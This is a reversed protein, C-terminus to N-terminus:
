EVEISVIETSLWWESFNGIYLRMGVQIEHRNAAEVMAWSAYDDNPVCYAYAAPNWYGGNKKYGGDMLEYTSGTETTIKM